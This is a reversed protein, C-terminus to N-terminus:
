GMIFNGISYLTILTDICYQYLLPCLKGGCFWYCLLILYNPWVSKTDCVVKLIIMTADIAYM